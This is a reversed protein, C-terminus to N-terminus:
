TDSDATLTSPSRVRSEVRSHWGASPWGIAAPCVMGGPSLVVVTEVIGVVVVGPSVVVVSASVAGVRGGRRLPVELGPVVVVVVVRGPTVVVVRGPCVVV